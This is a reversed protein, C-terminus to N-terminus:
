KTPPGYFVNFLTNRKKEYLLDVDISEINFSQNETLALIMESKLNSIRIFMYQFGEGKIIIEQKTYVSMIQCNM